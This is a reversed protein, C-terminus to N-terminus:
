LNTTGRSETHLARRQAKLGVIKGLQRKNCPSYERHSEHTAHRRANGKNYIPVEMHSPAAGYKQKPIRHM